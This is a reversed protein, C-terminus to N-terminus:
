FRAYALKFGVSYDSIQIDEAIVPESLGHRITLGIGSGDGELVIDNM